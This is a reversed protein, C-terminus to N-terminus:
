ELFELTRVSSRQGPLPETEDDDEDDDEDEFPSTPKRNIVKGAGDV